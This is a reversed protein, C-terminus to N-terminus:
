NPSSFDSNVVSEIKIEQILYCISYQILRNKLNAKFKQRLSNLKSVIDIFELQAYAKNISWFCDSKKQRKPECRASVRFM